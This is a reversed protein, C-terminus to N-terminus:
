PVVRCLPDSYPGKASKGGVFRVRVWQKTASPLGAIVGQTGTSTAKLAFSNATMPDPSVEVEVAHIGDASDCQWTLQGEADGTTVSLGGPKVLPIPGRPKRLPMGSLEATAENGNAIGEVYGGVQDMVPAVALLASQQTDTLSKALDNNQLVAQHATTLPTLVGDIATVTATANTFVTPNAALNAKVTTLQTIVQEVSKRSISRNILNMLKRQAPTDPEDWRVGSDFREGSDWRAM